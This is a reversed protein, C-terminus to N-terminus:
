PLSVLDKTKLKVIIRDGARTLLGAKTVGVWGEILYDPNWCSRTGEGANRVRRVADNLTGSFVLPVIEAGLKQAVDQVAERKLWWDPRDTRDTRPIRVDFLVFAMDPRYNGGGGPLGAGYSEGHLVAPGNFTQELLEEPFLRALLDLHEPTFSADDTRGTYRPRHGDWVIRTNVGDVKETFQWPADALTELEPSSWAYPILRNRSAGSTERLFPAPIKQYEDSM